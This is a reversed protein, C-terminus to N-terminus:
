PCSVGLAGEVAAQAGATDVEGPSQSDLTRGLVDLAEGGAARLDASLVDLLALATAQNEATFPVAQLELLLATALGAEVGDIAVEIAADYAPDQGAEIVLRDLPDLRGDAALAAIFGERVAGLGTGIAELHGSGCAADVAALRAGTGHPQGAADWLLGVFRDFGAASREDLARWGLYLTLADLRGAAQLGHWRASGRGAAVDAVAGLQIARAIRSAIGLGADDDAMVGPRRDRAGELTEAFDGSEYYVSAFVGPASPTTAESAVYVGPDGMAAVDFGEAGALAGLAGITAAVELSESPTAEIRDPASSEVPPVGSDDGGGGAGGGGGEGGNGGGGGGGPVCGVALLAGLLWGRMEWRGVVRERGGGARGLSVVGSSGGSRM